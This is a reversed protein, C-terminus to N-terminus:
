KALFTRIAEGQKAIALVGDLHGGDGDIVVVEAVGGQARYRAAAKESLEPPFILDSKAPVFLIRAKMGKVEADSLQYLQNAKNTYLLSNADTTKARAVGAKMLADEIAYANAMAAGPAKAADAPKYGYTREAWGHARATITVSPSSM